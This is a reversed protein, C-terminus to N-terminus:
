AKNEAYQTFHFVYSVCYPLYAAIKHIVDFLVHYGFKLLGWYVSYTMLVDLGIHTHSQTYMITSSTLLAVLVSSHTIYTLCLM